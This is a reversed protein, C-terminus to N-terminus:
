KCGGKAKKGLNKPDQKAQKSCGRGNDEDGEKIDFTIQSVSGSFDMMFANTSSTHRATAVFDYETNNANSDITVEVDPSPSYGYKDNSITSLLCSNDSNGFTWYDKCAQFVSRLNTQTAADYTRTKIATFSSIAVGALIAIIVLAVMLEVLTFGKENKLNIKEVKSM